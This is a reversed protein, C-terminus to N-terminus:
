NEQTFQTAINTTALHSVFSRASSTSVTLVSSLKLFIEVKPVPFRGTDNYHWLRFGDLEKVCEPVATLENMCSSSSTAASTATDNLSSAGVEISAKAKTSPPVLSLNTPIFPNRPPLHMQSTDPDSSKQWLQLMSVPIADRWHLTQNLLILLFFFILTVLLSAVAVTCM